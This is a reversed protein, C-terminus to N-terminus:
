GAFDPRRFKLATYCNKQVKDISCHNRVFDELIDYPDRMQDLSM